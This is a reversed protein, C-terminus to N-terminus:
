MRRWSELRGSRGAGFGSRVPRRAILGRAFEKVTEAGVRRTLKRVTSEDPVRDSLSIRCFRGSLALGVGGGAVISVGVSIQGEAGDPASIDEDREDDPIAGPSDDEM